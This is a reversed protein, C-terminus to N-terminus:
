GPTGYEGRSQMETVTSTIPVTVSIFSSLAMEEQAIDAAADIELLDFPTAGAHERRVGVQPGDTAGVGASCLIEGTKGFESMQFM